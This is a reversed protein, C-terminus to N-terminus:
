CGGSRSLSCLPLAARLCICQATRARRLRLARATYTHHTCSTLTACAHRTCLTHSQSFPRVEAQKNTIQDGLSVATVLDAQQARRLLDSRQARMAALSDELDKIQIPLLDLESTRVAATVRQKVMTLSPSASSGSRALASTGPSSFAAKSLQQRPALQGADGAARSFGKALNYGGGYAATRAAEILPQKKWRGDGWSIISPDAELLVLAEANMRVELAKLGNSHDLGYLIRPADPHLKRRQEIFETVKAAHAAERKAAAIAGVASAAIQVMGASSAQLAAQASVNSSAPAALSPPPSLVAGAEPLAAPLTFPLPSPPMHFPVASSAAAETNPQLSQSSLAGPTGEDNRTVKDKYPSGGFAFFVADNAELESMETADGGDLYLKAGTADLAAVQDADLLKRAAAEVLQQQTTIGHEVGIKLTAGTASGNIRVRIRLSM